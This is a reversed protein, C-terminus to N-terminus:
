GNNKVGLQQSYSNQYNQFSKRLSSIIRYTLIILAFVGLPHASFSETIKFRFLYSISEGLGCGPCFAFGLNNIPCISFHHDNIPNYTALYLLGAIWIVLELNISWLFAFIKQRM